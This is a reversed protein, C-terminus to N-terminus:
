AVDKWFVLKIFLLVFFPGAIKPGMRIQWLFSSIETFSRQSVMKSLQGPGLRFKFTMLASPSLEMNFWGQLANGVARSKIHILCIPSFMLRFRGLEKGSFIFFLMSSAINPVGIFFPNTSQIFSQSNSM